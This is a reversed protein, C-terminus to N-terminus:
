YINSLSFSDSITVQNKSPRIGIYNTKIFHMSVLVDVHLDNVVLANFHFNHDGLKVYLDVERVSELHTFEDAQLVRQTTRKILAGIYKGFSTRIM